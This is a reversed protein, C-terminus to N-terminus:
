PGSFSVSKSMTGVGAKHQAPFIRVHRERTTAFYVYLHPIQFVVRSADNNLCVTRHLFTNPNREANM